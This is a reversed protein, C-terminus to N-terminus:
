LSSQKNSDTISELNKLVTSKQELYSGNKLSFIINRTKRHRPVLILWEELFPKSTKNQAGWTNMLFSNITRTKHHGPIPGNKWSNINRRKHHGPIPGNKLSNINRTKHHGPIPGNKWFSNISRTKHHGPIPGNKLTSTEHKTSELYQAM